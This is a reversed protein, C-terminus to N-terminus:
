DGIVSLDNLQISADCEGNKFLRICSLHGDLNHYEEQSDKTDNNAFSPQILYLDRVHLMNLIADDRNKYVKLENMLSLSGVFHIKYVIM